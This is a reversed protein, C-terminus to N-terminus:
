LQSRTRIQHTLTRARTLIHSIGEYASFSALAPKKDLTKLIDPVNEPWVQMLYGAYLRLHQRLVSLYYGRKNLLFTPLQPAYPSGVIWEPVCARDCARVRMVGCVLM